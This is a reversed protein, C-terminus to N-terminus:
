QSKISGIFDELSALPCVTESEQLNNKNGYEETQYAFRVEILLSWVIEKTSLTFVM